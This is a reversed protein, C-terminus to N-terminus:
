LGLGALLGLPDTREVLEPDVACGFIPLPDPREGREVARRIRAHVARQASPREFYGGVYRLGGDKLVLVPGSVLGWTSRLEEPEVRELTLGRAAIRSEWRASAGVLVVVDDAPAEALVATLLRDTCSCNAPVVHVTAREASIASALLSADVAGPLAVLHRAMTLGLVAALGIFWVVLFAIGLAERLQVEVCRHWSWRGGM